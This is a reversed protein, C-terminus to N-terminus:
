EPQSCSWMSGRVRHAAQLAVEVKTVQATAEELEKQKETVATTASEAEM